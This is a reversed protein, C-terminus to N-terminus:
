LARYTKHAQYANILEDYIGITTELTAIFHLAQWFNEIGQTPTQNRPAVRYSEACINKEVGYFIGSAVITYAALILFSLISKFFKKIKVWVLYLKGNPKARKKVLLQENFIM